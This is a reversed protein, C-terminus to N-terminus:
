KSNCLCRVLENACKRFCTNYYTLGNRGCQLDQDQEACSAGCPTVCKGRFVLPDESRLPLSVVNSQDFVPVCQEPPQCRSLSFSFTIDAKRSM